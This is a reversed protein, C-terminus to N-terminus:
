IGEADGGDTVDGATSDHADGWLARSERLYQEHLHPVLKDISATFYFWPLGDRELEPECPEYWDRDGAVHDLRTCLGFSCRCGGQPFEVWDDRHTIAEQVSNYLRGSM